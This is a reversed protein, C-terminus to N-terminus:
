EVKWKIYVEHNAYDILYYMGLEKCYKWRENKMPEYDELGSYIMDDSNSIEYVVVDDDDYNIRESPQFNAPLIFYSNETSWYGTIKHLEDNYLWKINDADVKYYGTNYGRNGLALIYRGVPVQALTSKLKQLLMDRNGGNVGSTGLKWLDSNLSSKIYRKM